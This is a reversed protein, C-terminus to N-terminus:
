TPQPLELRFTTGESRQVLRLDGGHNLAIRRSVSLGLGTGEGLQRTTFFPDFIRDRLQAPVGPGSDIVEITALDDERRAVIRIAGGPGAAKAANDLLNILVQEILPGACQIPEEISIDEVVQIAALPERLVLRARRVLRRVDDPRKSVAGTRSYDLINRCLDRIQTAGITMVEALLGGPADPSRMDEPLLSVLPGIANVVANAPNRLEHALGASMMGMAALKQSEHLKLALRRIALQSRIRALLEDASFPKLVYDVAGAEFGALRQGLGAHASVILVPSLSTGELALFQKTLEVGDMEPMELDTVLLHPLHTRALELAARGDPAELVRYRESLVGAIHNRLSPDDEALLITAEPEHTPDQAPQPRAATTARDTATAAHETVTPQVIVAATQRDQDTAVATIAQYRPLTVVFSTGRPDEHRLVQIAGHQREVFEKSLSLGIGTGRVGKSMADTSREFRGFMRSAFEPDIGPGTDRVGITLAEDRAELTVTVTGGPPTFKVANSLFNGVITDLANEDLTAPCEDPGSYVIQLQGREGASKWNKVLRQISAAADLARPSIRLKGEDGAALLLLSNVLNLLRRTASNVEDLKHRTRETLDGSREIGDAALQILTLPTRIEHNINAFFRDRAAKAERLDEFTQSLRQNADALEATRDAVRRELTARYDLVEAFSLAHDISMFLTPLVFELMEIQEDIEDATRFHVTITGIELGRVFVPTDRRLQADNGCDGVKYAHQAHFNEFTADISIEAGAFGGVEVFSNAIGEVVKDLSLEDHAAQIISTATELRRAQRELSRLADTGEDESDVSRYTLEGTNRRTHRRARQENTVRAGNVIAWTRPVDDRLWSM